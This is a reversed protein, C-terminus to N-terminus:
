RSAETTTSPPFTAAGNMRWAEPADAGVETKFRFRDPRLGRAAIARDLERLGFEVPGALAPAPFLTALAWM